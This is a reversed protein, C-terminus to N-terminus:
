DDANGEKAAIFGNYLSELLHVLVLVGNIVFISYVYTMKIGMAPSIRTTNSMMLRYGYRILIYSLVAVLLYSLFQFVAQLRKPMMMVLMDVKFHGNESSVLVAGLMTSWIFLYRCAEESWSLPSRLVLRFFVQLFGMVTFLVMFLVTVFTEGKHLYRFFTKM